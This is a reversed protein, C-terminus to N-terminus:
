ADMRVLVTFGRSVKCDCSHSRFSSAARLLTPAGIRPPRDLLGNVTLIREAWDTAVAYADGATRRIVTRVTDGGHLLQVRWTAM